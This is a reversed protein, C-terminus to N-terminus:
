KRNSHVCPMLQLISPLTVLTHKASSPSPFVAVHPSILKQTCAVQKLRNHWKTGSKQLQWLLSFNLQVSAFIVDTLFFFCKPCPRNHCRTHFLFGMSNQKMQRATLALQSLQLSCFPVASYDTEIFLTDPESSTRTNHNSLGNHLCSSLFWLYLGSDLLLIFLYMGLHFFNLKSKGSTRTPPWIDQDSSLRPCHFDAVHSATLLSAWGGTAGGTTWGLNKFALYTFDCRGPVSLVHAQKLSCSGLKGCHCRCFEIHWVKHLAEICTSRVLGTLGRLCFNIFCGYIM